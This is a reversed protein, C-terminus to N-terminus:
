TQYPIEYVSKYKGTKMMIDDRVRSQGINYNKEEQAFIENKTSNITESLKKSIETDTNNIIEPLNNYESPALTVYNNLYNEEPYRYGVPYKTKIFSNDNFIKKWLSKANDSINGSPILKKYKKIFLKYLLFGIGKQSNKNKWVTGIKYLGIKKDKNTINGTTIYGIINNGDYAFISEYDSDDFYFKIDNNFNEYKKLYKM